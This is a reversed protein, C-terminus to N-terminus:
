QEQKPELGIISIELCVQGCRILDGMTVVMPASVPAQNLFTGNTSGLDELWWQNHHFSLYAHQISVTQDELACDSAPDRGIHVEPKSFHYALKGDQRTLTLAPVKHFTLVESQRRLDVWITYFAWALFAYLCLVLVLRLALFVVGSM